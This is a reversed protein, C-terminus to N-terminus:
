EEKKTGPKKNISEIKKVIEDFESRTIYNSMDIPEQKQQIPAANREVLDFIQMSPKGTADAKKLYVVSANSNWLAVAANPAVFYSAAENDGSVWIIGQQSSQPPTQSMQYPQQYIQPQYSYYPYNAM